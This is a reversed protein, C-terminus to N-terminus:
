VSQVQKSILSSRIVLLIWCISTSISIFCVSFFVMMSLNWMCGMPNACLKVVLYLLCGMAVSTLNIMRNTGTGFSVYFYWALGLAIIETGTNELTASSYIIGWLFIMFFYPFLRGTFALYFVTLLFFDIWIHPFLFQFVSPVVLFLLIDKKNLSSRQQSTKM